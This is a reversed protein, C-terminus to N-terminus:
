IFKSPSVDFYRKFAKSFTYQDPYGLLNAIEKVSYTKLYIYERARNMKLQYIYQTPTIGLISGFYTIFYKESMNAIDALDKILMPKSLNQNIYLFVPELVSLKKASNTQAQGAPFQKGYGKGRLEIIRAVLMIFCGKLYMASLDQKDRIAKFAKNISQVEDSILDGNIIGSLSLGDLVNYQNGIGYDFHIFIFSCGGDSTSATYLYNPYFFVIDGHRATFEQGAIKIDVRGSTIIWIDYDQHVKSELWLEDNYCELYSNIRISIHESLENFVSLNNMDKGV